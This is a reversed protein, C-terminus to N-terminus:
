TSRTFFRRHNSTDRCNGPYRTSGQKQKTADDIYRGSVGVLKGVQDRTKISTKKPVPDPKPEVALSKSPPVKAVLSDEKLKPRGRGGKAGGDKQGDSKRLESQKDYLERMAAGAMATECDTQTKELRSADGGVM